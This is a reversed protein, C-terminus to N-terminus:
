TLAATTTPSVSSSSSVVSVSAAASITVAAATTTVATGAPGTAALNSPTLQAERRVMNSSFGPLNPFRIGIERAVKVPVQLHELNTREM